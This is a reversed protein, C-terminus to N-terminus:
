KAKPRPKIPNSLDIFSPVRTGFVQYRRGRYAVSEWGAHQQPQRDIVEVVDTFFEAAQANWAPLRGSRVSGRGSRVIIRMTFEKARFVTVV